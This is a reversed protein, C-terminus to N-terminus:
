FLLHSPLPILAPFPEPLVSEESPDEAVLREAYFLATQMDLQHTYVEVRHRIEAALGGM